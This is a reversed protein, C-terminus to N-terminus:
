EGEPEQVPRVAPPRPPEQQAVLERRPGHVHGRPEGVGDDEEAEVALVEADELHAVPWVSLAVNILWVQTSLVSPKSLM